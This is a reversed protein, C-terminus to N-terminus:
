LIAIHNQERPSIRVRQGIRGLGIDDRCFFQEAVRALGAGIFDQKAAVSKAGARQNTAMKFVIALARVGQKLGQRWQNM